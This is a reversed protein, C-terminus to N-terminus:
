RRRYGQWSLVSRSFADKVEVVPLKICAEDRGNDARGFVAGDATVPDIVIAIQHREGLFSSWLFEDYQSLFVGLGPHSHAWGVLTLGGDLASHAAFFDDPPIQLRTATGRARAAPLYQEVEIRDRLGPRHKGILFGGRESAQDEELHTHM